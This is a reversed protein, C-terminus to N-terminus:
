KKNIADMARAAEKFKFVYDEDLGVINKRTATVVPLGTKKDQRDMKFEERPIYMMGKFDKKTSDSPPKSFYIIGYLYPRKIFIYMRRDTIRILVKRLTNRNNVMDEMRVKEEEYLVKEGEELPFNKEQLKAAGYAIFIGVIIIIGLAVYSIISYDM